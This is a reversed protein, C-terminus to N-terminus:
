LCVIVNALLITKLVSSWIKITSSIVFIIKTHTGQQLEQQLNELSTFVNVLICEAM